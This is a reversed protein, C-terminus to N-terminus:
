SRHLTEIRPVFVEGMALPPLALGVLAVVAALFRSVARELIHGLRSSTCRSPRDASKGRVYIAAIVIRRDAQAREPSPGHPDNANRILGDGHM